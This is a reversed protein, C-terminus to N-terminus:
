RMSDLGGQVHGLGSCARPHMETCRVAPARRQSATPANRRKIRNPCDRCSIVEGNADRLVPGGCSGRLCKRKFVAGVAMALMAVGVVATTLALLLPFSGIEM